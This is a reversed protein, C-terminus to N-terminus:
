IKKKKKKKKSLMSSSSLIFSHHFCVLAVLLSSFFSLLHLLHLKAPYLLLLWCSYWICIIVSTNEREECLIPQFQLSALEPVVAGTLTGFLHVM